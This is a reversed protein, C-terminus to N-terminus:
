QVTVFILLAVNLSVCYTFGQHVHDILDIRSIRITNQNLIYPVNHIVSEALIIDFVVGFQVDEFTSLKDNLLYESFFMLQSWEVSSKHPGVLSLILNVCNIAFLEDAFNEAEIAKDARVTQVDHSSEALV